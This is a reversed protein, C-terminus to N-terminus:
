QALRVPHLSRGLFRTGARRGLMARASGTPARSRDHTSAPLGSQWTTVVDRAGTPPVECVVYLFFM